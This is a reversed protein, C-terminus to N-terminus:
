LIVVLILAYYLITFYLPSSQVYSTNPVQVRGHGIIAVAGSVLSVSCQSVNCVSGCVCVSVECYDTGFLMLPQHSSDAYPSFFILLQGLWLNVYFTGDVSGSFM